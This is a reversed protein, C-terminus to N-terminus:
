KNRKMGARGDFKILHTQNWHPIQVHNTNVLLNECIKVLWLEACRRGSVDKLSMDQDLTLRQGQSGQPRSTSECSQRTCKLPRGLGTSTGTRCRRPRAAGFSRNNGVPLDVIKIPFRHPILISIYMNIYAKNQSIYDISINKSILPMEIIIYNM